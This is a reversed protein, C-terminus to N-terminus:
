EEKGVSKSNLWERDEKTKTLKTKPSAALLAELTPQENVPTLVIKHDVISLELSSGIGLNLSNLIAKPISVINAGGSQRISLQTM